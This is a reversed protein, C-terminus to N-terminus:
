GSKGRLRFMKSRDGKARRQMARVSIGLIAAVEPLTKREGAYTVVAVGRKNGNSIKTTVWRCNKKSYPGNNDERDLMAGPPRPRMDAAFNEFVRWRDEVGIGRGGYDKWRKNNPNTVRQIM